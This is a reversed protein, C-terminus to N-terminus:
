RHTDLLSPRLRVTNSGANPHAASAPALDELGGHTATAKSRCCFPLWEIRLTVCRRISRGEDGLQVTKQIRHDRPLALRRRGMSLPAKNAVGIAERAQDLRGLFGHAPKGPGISTAFSGARTATQSIIRTSSLSSVNASRFGKAM